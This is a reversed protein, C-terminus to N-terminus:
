FAKTAPHRRRSGCEKGGKGRKNSKQMKAVKNSEQAANKNLHVSKVTLYPFASYLNNNNPMTCLSNSINILDEM